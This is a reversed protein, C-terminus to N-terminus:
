GLYKSAHKLKEAQASGGSGKKLTMFLLIASAFSLGFWTVLYNMHNNKYDIKPYKGLPVGANIFQLPNFEQTDDIVAKQKTDEDKKGWLKKWWPKVDDNQPTTDDDDDRRWDPRDRFDEIVQAYIEQTGVQESMAKLDMYHFLRSNEEHDFHFMGKTPPVRLLVEITIEGSPCSLHQLNRSEPVIKKDLIWGRDILIDGSGNSQVFPCLLIYGKQDDKLRPGLFIERSYDFHGTILVKRYELNPIDEPKVNTPLPVAPYTLRDECSAILQNKWKLRKLQWCGLGFTVIPTLCLLTLVIGRSTKSSDTTVNYTLQKTSKMPDWDINHTKVTAYSRSKFRLGSLLKFRPKFM